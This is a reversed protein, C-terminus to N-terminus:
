DDEPQWAPKRWPARGPFLGDLTLHTIDQAMWGVVLAVTFYMIYRLSVARLHVNIAWALLALPLCLYAIRSITGQPVTHSWGRHRMALAYPYWYLIWLYGPLGLLRLVRREEVTISRQDIDPTVLHGIMAGSVLGAVVAFTEVRPLAVVALVGAALVVTAINLTARAHTKGNAM